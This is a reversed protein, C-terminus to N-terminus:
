RASTMGLGQGHKCEETGHEWIETGSTHMHEHASVYVSGCCLSQQGRPGEAFVIAAFRNLALATNSKKDETGISSLKQFVKSAMNIGELWIFCEKGRVVKIRPNGHCFLVHMEECQQSDLTLANARLKRTAKAKPAM